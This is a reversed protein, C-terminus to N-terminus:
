LLDNNNVQPRYLTRLKRDYSYIAVGIFASLIGGVLFLWYSYGFKAKVGDIKLYKSIWIPIVVLTCLTALAFFVWCHRKYSPMAFYCILGILNLLVSIIAFSRVANLETKGIKPQDDLEHCASTNAGSICIKWLGWSIKAGDKNKVSWENTSIATTQLGLALIIAIAIGLRSSM